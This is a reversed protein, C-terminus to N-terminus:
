DFTLVWRPTQNNDDNNNHNPSNFQNEITTMYKQSSNGLLYRIGTIPYCCVSVILLTIIIVLYPHRSCILGHKYYIHGVKEEIRSLLQSSQRESSHSKSSLRTSSSDSLYDM